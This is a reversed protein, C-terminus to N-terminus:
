LVSGMTPTWPAFTYTSASRVGYENATAQKSRPCTIRDIPVLRSEERVKHRKNGAIAEFSTVFFNCMLLM